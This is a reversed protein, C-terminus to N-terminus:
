VARGLLAALGDPYLPITPARDSLSIWQAPGHWGAELIPLTPAGYLRSDAFSADFVCVIEHGPNGRHEFLNELVGLQV